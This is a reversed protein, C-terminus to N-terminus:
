ATYWPLVAVRIIQVDAITRDLYQRLVDRASCKKSFIKAPTHQHESVPFVAVQVRSQEDLYTIAYQYQKNKPPM